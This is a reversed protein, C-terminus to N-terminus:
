LLGPMCWDDTHKSTTDYFHVLGIVAQVCRLESFEPLQFSPLRQLVGHRQLDDITFPKKAFHVAHWGKPIRFLRNETRKGNIKFFLLPYPWKTSFATLTQDLQGHTMMLFDFM